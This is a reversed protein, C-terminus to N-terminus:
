PIFHLCTSHYAMLIYPVTFMSVGASKGKFNSLFFNSWWCKQQRKNFFIYYFIFYWSYLGQTFQNDSGSVYIDIWWQLATVMAGNEEDVRLPPPPSSPPLFYGPVFKLNTEPPDAWWSWYIRRDWVVRLGAYTYLRQSEDWWRWSILRAWNLRYIYVRTAYLGVWKWM